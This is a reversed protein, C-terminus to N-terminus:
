NTTVAGAAAGALMRPILMLADSLFKVFGETFGNGQIKTCSDGTETEAEVKPDAEAGPTCTGHQATVKGLGVMFANDTRAIVCGISLTFALLVAFLPKHDM